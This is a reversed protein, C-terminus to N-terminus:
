KLDEKFQDEKYNRVLNLTMVKSCATFTALKTLSQKGSGGVGILLANGRRFRIIRHIKLLHEIADNFLVLNMAQNGAYTYDELMKELKKRCNSYERLDEYLRPDETEEDIPDAQMFDAYLIPDALVKDETGPFYNSVLTQVTESV